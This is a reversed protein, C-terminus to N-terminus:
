RANQRLVASQCPKALNTASGCLFAGRMTLFKAFRAGIQLHRTIVFLRTLQRPPNRCPGHAQALMWSSKDDTRASARADHFGRIAASRFGAARRDAQANLQRM